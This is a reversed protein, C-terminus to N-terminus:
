IFRPAALLAGTVPLSRRRHRRGDCSAPPRQLRGNLFRGNCAATVPLPRCRHCRGNCLCHGSAPHRLLCFARRNHACTTTTSSAPTVPSPLPSHSTSHPQSRTRRWLKAGHTSPPGPHSTFDSHFRQVPLLEKVVIGGEGGGGLLLPPASTPFQLWRRAVARARGRVPSGSDNPSSAGRDNKRPNPTKLFFFSSAPLDGGGRPCSPAEPPLFCFDGGNAL